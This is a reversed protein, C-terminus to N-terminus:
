STDLKICIGRKAKIILLIIGSLLDIWNGVSDTDSKLYRLTEDLLVEGTLNDDQIVSFRSKSQSRPRCISAKTSRQYM